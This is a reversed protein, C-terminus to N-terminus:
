LHTQNVFGRPTISSFIKVDFFHGVEGKLLTLTPMLGNASTLAEDEVGKQFTEVATLCCIRVYHHGYSFYPCWSCLHTEWLGPLPKIEMMRHLNLLVTILDGRWQDSPKLRLGTKLVGGMFVLFLCEAISIHM